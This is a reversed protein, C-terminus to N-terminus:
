PLLPPIITLSYGTLDCGWFHWVYEHQFGKLLYSVVPFDLLKMLKSLDCQVSSFIELLGMDLNKLFWNRNWFGAFMIPLETNLCIISQSTSYKIHLTRDQVLKEIWFCEHSKQFPLAIVLWFVQHWAQVTNTHQIWAMKWSITSNKMFIFATSVTAKIPLAERSFASEDWSFQWTHFFFSGNKLLCFAPIM